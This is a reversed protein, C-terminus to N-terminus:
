AFRKLFAVSRPVPLLDQRPDPDAPRGTGTGNALDVQEADTLHMPHATADM